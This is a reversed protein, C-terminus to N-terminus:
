FLEHYNNKIKVIERLKDLGYKFRSKVTTLPENLLEAIEHFKMEEMIKFRIVEAQNDPLQKLLLDITKLKENLMFESSEEQENDKIETIAAFNRRTQLLNISMNSVTKYLYAKINDIPTGACLMHYLNIFANQVVDQADCMSGTRFYAYRFLEDQYHLIWDNLQNNISNNIKEM